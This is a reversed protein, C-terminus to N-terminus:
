KMHMELRIANVFEQIYPPADKRYVAAHVLPVDIHMSLAIYKKQHFFYQFALAPMLVMTGSRELMARHFEVDNSWVTSERQASALSKKAPIINYLSQRYKKFESESLETTDGSLFKKNFVAV